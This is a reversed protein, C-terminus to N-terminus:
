KVRKRRSLGTVALPVICQTPCLKPPANAVRTALQIEAEGSNLPLTLKYVKPEGLTPIFDKEIM